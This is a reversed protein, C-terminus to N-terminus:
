ANSEALKGGFELISLNIDLSYKAAVFSFAKIFNEKTLWTGVEDHALQLDIILDEYKSLNSTQLYDKIAHNEVLAKWRKNEFYPKYLADPLLHGAACKANDHGRYACLFMAKNYSRIGQKALEFVVYDFVEQASNFKTDKTVM